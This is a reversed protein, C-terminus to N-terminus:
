PNSPGSPPETSSDTSGPPTIAAAVLRSPDDAGDGIRRRLDGLGADDAVDLSRAERDALRGAALRLTAARDAGGELRAASHGISSRIRSWSQSFSIPLTANLGTVASVPDFSPWSPSTGSHDRQEAGDHLLSPTPAASPM